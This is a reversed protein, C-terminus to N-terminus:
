SRDPMTSCRARASFRGARRWDWSARRRRSRCATFMWRSARTPMGSWWSRGRICGWAFPWCSRSPRERKRMAAQMELAFAVGDSPAAFVALFSDGATDVEQGDFRGLVERFVARHQRTVKAAAINGLESQQRTSDVLDSFLITLVQTNHTVRYRELHAKSADSLVARADADPAGHESAETM